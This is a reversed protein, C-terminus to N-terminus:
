EKDPFLSLPLDTVYGDACVVQYSPETAEPQIKVPGVHVPTKVEQVGNVMVTIQEPLKKTEPFKFPNM